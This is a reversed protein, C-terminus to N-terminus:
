YVYPILNWTRKRYELYPEGLQSIRFSEQDSIFWKLLIIVGPLALLPLWANFVLPLGALALLEGSADPYRVVKHPGSPFQSEAAPVPLSSAPVDGTIAPDAPAAETEPAAALQSPQSIQAWLRLWIGALVVCIGITRVIQHGQIPFVGKAIRECLACCAVYLLFFLPTGWLVLGKYAPVNQVSRRRSQFAGTIAGDIASLPILLGEQWTAVTFVAAHMKWIEPKICLLGLLFLALQFIGFRIARGTRMPVSRRAPLDATM